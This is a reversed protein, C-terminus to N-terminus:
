RRSPSKRAIPLTPVLATPLETQEDGGIVHDVIFLQRDKSQIYLRGLYEGCHRHSGDTHSWYCPCGVDTIDLRSRYKRGHLRLSRTRRAAIRRFGNSLGCVSALRLPKISIGTFADVALKLMSSLPYKSDGAFRAEREYEVYTQRLGIWSVLGRIFRDKEPMSQLMDTVRRSMLRFDGTDTPLEIDVLRHLARYFLHATTNKFRTEGDRERRKGYVVDYGENLRAMMRGLMEPPDQLDADLVRVRDGNSYQLGATLALQHGYNRSLFVGIVREDEKCANGIQEATGDTSGDDVLILEFDEIKEAAFVQRTRRLLEPLVQEGNYCPM